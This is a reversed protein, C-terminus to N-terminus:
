QKKHKYHLLYPRLCSSLYYSIYPAKVSANLPKVQGPHLIVRRNGRQLYSWIVGRLPCVLPM